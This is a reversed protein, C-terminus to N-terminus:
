FAGGVRGSQLGWDEERAGQSCDGIVVERGAPSCDESLTVM